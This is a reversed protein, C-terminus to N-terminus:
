SVSSEVLAWVDDNIKHHRKTVPKPEEERRFLTIISEREYWLVDDKMPWFWICDYFPM